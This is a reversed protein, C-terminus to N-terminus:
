KLRATVERAARLGTEIAGDIFGRWGNATDSGAFVILGEAQRMSPGYKSWMGPRYDCWTGKSYPDANWDYAFSRQVRAGPMLRGIERNIAEDDNLDFEQTSPGMAVMVTGKPGSRDTYLLSVPNPASAFALYPKPQGEILVHLEFGSGAHRQRSAELKGAQLGPKWSIDGWCNMPLAVVMTRGSFSRGDDCHAVVNHDSAEVSTISTNLEVKCGSDAVMRNLLAATGKELKFQACAQLLREGDYGARAYWHMQDLLGAERPRASVATTLFATIVAHTVPDFGSADIRDQVSLHDLAAWNPNFTPDFPRPFVTRAEAFLRQMASNITEANREPDQRDLESGTLVGVSAPSAAGPTEYLGLGYRTVEAWVHPQIWHIWQGGVDAAEGFVETSFTRGGLRGRAELIVCRQGRQGLERAATVGAFGGGLILVDYPQKPARTASRGIAPAAMAGLALTKLLTRREIPM